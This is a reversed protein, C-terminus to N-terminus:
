NDSPDSPMNLWLRYRDGFRNVASRWLTDDGEDILLERSAADIVAWDHQNLESALQGNHWGSYGVIFKVRGAVPLGLELYHKLADFQGGFYVGDALLTSDPIADPGLTHMYFLMQTGVPGGLFLPIEEATDVDPMVDRLNYGTYHNVVVGMAGDGEDPDVIAVVSRKFFFDGVTPKAVLLSGRTPMPQTDNLNFIDRELEDMTIAFIIFFKCASFLLVLLISTKVNYSLNLVM